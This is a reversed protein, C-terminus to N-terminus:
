NTHNSRPLIKVRLKSFLGVLIPYMVKFASMNEESAIESGLFAACGFFEIDRIYILFSACLDHFLGVVFYNM